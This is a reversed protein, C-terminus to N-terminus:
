IAKAYYLVLEGEEEESLVFERYGWHLYIALNRTERAEVGITLRRYGLVAAHQEMLKVLASIHGQGEFAKSIRLANINAVASGDALETRGAIASCSPSLLLTGEGVPNGDMVVAFTVSTGELHNRIYEERWRPWRGDGPNSAIMRDWLANLDALSAIRYEVDM